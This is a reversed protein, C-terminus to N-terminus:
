HYPSPFLLGPAVGPSLCLVVHRFELRASGDQGPNEENGPRLNFADGDKVDQEGADTAEL